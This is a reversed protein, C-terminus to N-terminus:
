IQSIALQIRPSYLSAHENELRGCTGEKVLHLARRVPKKLIFTSPTAESSPLGDLMPTIIQSLWPEGVAAELLIREDGKETSIVFAIAKCSPTSSADSIPGELTIKSDSAREMICTTLSPLTPPSKPCM